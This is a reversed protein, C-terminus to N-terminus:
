QAKIYKILKDDESSPNPYYSSGKVRVFIVDRNISWVISMFPIGDPPTVGQHFYIYDQKVKTVVFTGAPVNEQVNVSDVKTKVIIKIQPNPSIITSDSWSDGVNVNARILRSIIYYVQNQFSYPISIIISDSANIYFLNSNQTTDLLPYFKINNITTEPRVVLKSTDTSNNRQRQFLWSDGVKISYQPSPSPSTSSSKSCAVISLTLTILTIKRMTLIKFDFFFEIKLIKKL